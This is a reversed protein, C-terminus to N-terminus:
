QPDIKFNSQQIKKCKNLEGKKFNLRSIKQTIFKKGFIKYLYWTKILPFFYIKLHYKRSFSKDTCCITHHYECWFTFLFHHVYIIIGLIKLQRMKKPFSSSDNETKNKSVAWWWKEKTTKFYLFQIKIHFNWKKRTARKLKFQGISDTKLYLVNLLGYIIKFLVSYLTFYSSFTFNSLKKM